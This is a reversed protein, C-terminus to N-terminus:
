VKEGRRRRREEPFETKPFHTSVLNWLADRAGFLKCRLAWLRCGHHFKIKNMIYLCGVERSYEPLLPVADIIHRHTMLSNM